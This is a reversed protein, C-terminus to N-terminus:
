CIPLIEIAIRQLQTWATLASAYWKLNRLRMLLNLVLDDLEYACIRVRAVCRSMTVFCSPFPWTIQISANPDSQVLKAAFNFVFGIKTTIPIWGGFGFPRWYDRSHPYWLSGVIVTSAMPLFILIRLMLFVAQCTCVETFPSQKLIDERTSAVVQM